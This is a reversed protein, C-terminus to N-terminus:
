CSSMGVVLVKQTCASKQRKAGDEAAGTRGLRTHHSEGMKGQLHQPCWKAFFLGELHGPDGWEGGELMLCFVM